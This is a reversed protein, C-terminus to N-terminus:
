PLCSNNYTKGIHPGENSKRYRWSVLLLLCMLGILSYFYLGGEVFGVYLNASERNDVFINWTPFGSLLWILLLGYRYSPSFELKVGMRWLVVFPLLLMPFYYMWGLPSVLLMAVTTLSFGIDFGDLNSRSRCGQYAVAWLTVAVGFVILAQGLLEYRMYSGAIGGGLLRYFFGSFSANWTGTVVDSMLAMAGFYEVYPNAGLITLVSLNGLLFISIALVILKYSKRFLFFFLYMGFTIKLLLAVGLLLGALNDRGERAKVWILVVFWLMCLGWQGGLIGNALTPFYCFLVISWTLFDDHREGQKSKISAIMAAAHLGMIVSLVSWLWFSARLPLFIFPVHILTHVPSNMTPCLRSQDREVSSVPAYGGPQRPLRVYMSEGKLFSSASSYFLNFDSTEAHRSKFDILLSYLVLVVGLVIVLLVRVAKISVTIM